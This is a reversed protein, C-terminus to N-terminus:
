QQQYTLRLVFITLRLVFHFIDQCKQSCGSLWYLAVLEMPPMWFMDLSTSSRQLFFSLFIFLTSLVRELTYWNVVFFPSTHHPSTQIYFSYPFDNFFLLRVWKSIWLKNFSILCYFSQIKWRYWLPRSNVDVSVCWNVFGWIKSVLIWIIIIGSSDGFKLCTKVQLKLTTKFLSCVFLSGRLCLFIARSLNGWPWLM